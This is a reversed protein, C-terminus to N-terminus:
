GYLKFYITVQLDQLSALTGSSKLGLRDGKTFVLLDFATTIGGDEVLNRIRATGASATLDFTTTLLNDGQSIKEAGQCRVLQLSGNSAATGHSEAVSELLYARDASFIYGYLSASQAENGPLSKVIPFILLDKIVKQSTSDLPSKLQFGRDFESLAFSNELKRVEMLVSEFQRKLGEVEDFSNFTEEDKIKEEDKNAM